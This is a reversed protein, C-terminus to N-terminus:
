WNPSVPILISNFVLLPELSLFPVSLRQRNILHCNWIYKLTTEKGFTTVYKIINKNHKSNAILHLTKYIKITIRFMQLTQLICYIM